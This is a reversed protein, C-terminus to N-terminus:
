RQLLTRVYDFCQEIEQPKLELTMTGNYGVTRIAEFIRAFDISGAGVPLHLDDESSQGGRNDHLHIHRIRDPYQELFGYSTNQESLLEAHGLDLTMKLLPVASFVEALHEATESLNELCLIIGAHQAVATLRKLLGIKYQITHRKLFRPDMWLHMTLVRMELQPMLSIIETLKPFYVSEIAKLDNPGGERPGHCLYYLGTEQRAAQYRHIDNRFKQPDEIPLEAFELGLFYLSIVAEPTRATGGLHIREDKGQMKRGYKPNGHDQM